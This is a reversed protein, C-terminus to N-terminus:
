LVDKRRIFKLERETKGYSAKRFVAAQRVNLNFIFFYHTSPKSELVTKNRGSHLNFHDNLQLM